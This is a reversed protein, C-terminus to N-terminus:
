FSRVPITYFAKPKPKGEPWQELITRLSSPIVGHADTEVELSSPFGFHYVDIPSVLIDRILLTRYTVLLLYADNFM